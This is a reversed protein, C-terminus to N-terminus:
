EALASSMGHHEDCAQFRKRLILQCAVSDVRMHFKAHERAALPKPGRLRSPTFFYSIMQPESKSLLQNAMLDSGRGIPFPPKKAIKECRGKVTNQRVTFLLSVSEHGKGLVEFKEGCRNQRKALDNQTSHLDAEVFGEADAATDYRLFFAQDDM